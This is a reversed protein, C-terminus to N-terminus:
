PRTGVWPGSAMSARSAPLCQWMSFGAAALMLDMEGPFVYRLVLPALTRRLESASQYRQGTQKELLRTDGYCRYVTWPVIVGADGWAPAADSTAAVRPSTSRSMAGPKGEYLHFASGEM